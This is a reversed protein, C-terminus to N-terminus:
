TTCWLVRTVAQCMVLELCEVIRARLRRPLCDSLRCRETVSCRDRLNRLSSISQSIALGVVDGMMRFNLAEEERRCLREVPKDHVGSHRLAEREPTLCQAV